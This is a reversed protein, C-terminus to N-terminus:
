AASVPLRRERTDLVHAYFDDLVATLRDWALSEALARANHEREPRASGDRVAEVMARALAAADPDAVWGAASGRVRGALDSVDTMVTARGAALYDNV